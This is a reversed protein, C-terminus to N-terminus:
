LASNEKIRASTGTVISRGVFAGEFRGRRGLFITGQPAYVTAAVTTLPRATFAKGSSELDLRIARADLPATAGIASRQRLLVANQIRIACKAQCQLRGRSAITLSRFVYGGGALILDASANVTVDGYEGPGIPASRTRKPVSFAVAGLPPQSLRLNSLDAVPQTLASCTATGPGEIFRCTLSGASAGRMLTVRDAAVNDLVHANRGLEVRGSIAGVPGGEVLTGGGVHVEDRALLAYDDLAHLPREAARGPGATLLGGMAVMWLTARRM